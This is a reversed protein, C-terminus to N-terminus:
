TNTSLKVTYEYDTTCYVTYDITYVRRSILKLRLGKESGYYKPKNNKVLNLGSIFRSYLSTKFLLMKLINSYQMRIKIIKLVFLVLPVFKKCM